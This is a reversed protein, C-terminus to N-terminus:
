WSRVMKRHQRRTVDTTMLGGTAGQRGEVIIPTARSTNRHGANLAHALQCIVSIVAVPLTYGSALACAIAVLVTSLHSLAIPLFKTM